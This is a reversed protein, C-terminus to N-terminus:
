CTPRDTASSLPKVRVGERIARAARAVVLEALAIPSASADQGALRTAAIARTAAATPTPSAAKPVAAGATRRCHHLSNPGIIGDAANLFIRM